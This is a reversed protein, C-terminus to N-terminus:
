RAFLGLVSFYKGFREEGLASLHDGDSWYIGNCSMFDDPFRYQFVKNQSVFHLREEDAVLKEIYSDLEEFIERQKPRLMFDFNCGRQLIMRATIHPEIRSGFWVVNVHDSLSKLFRYVKYIHDEDLDIDNLAVGYPTNTFMQRSGKKEKTRLLYFGAQEFIVGNFFDKNKKVFNLFGDYHCNPLPTHPRCGDNTIGILFPYSNSSTVVGFM